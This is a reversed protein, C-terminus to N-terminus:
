TVFFIGSSKWTDKHPPWSLPRPGSQTVDMSTLISHSSMMEMMPGRLFPPYLNMGTGPVVCDYYTGSITFSVNSNVVILHLIKGSLPLTAGEPQWMYPPRSPFEIGGRPMAGSSLCSPLLTLTASGPRLSSPGTMHSM